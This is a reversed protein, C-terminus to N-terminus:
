YDLMLGWTAVSHAGSFELCACSKFVSIYSEESMVTTNQQHYFSTITSTHTHGESVTRNVKADEYVNSMKVQLWIYPQERAENWLPAGAGVPYLSTSVVSSMMEINRLTGLSRGMNLFIIGPIKHCLVHSLQEQWLNIKKWPRGHSWSSHITSPFLWWTSRHNPNQQVSHETLFQEPFLLNFLGISIPCLCYFMM